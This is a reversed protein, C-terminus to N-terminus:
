NRLGPKPDLNTVPASETKWTASGASEGGRLVARIKLDGASRVEVIGSTVLVKSQATTLNHSVNFVTGRVGAVLTKTGVSFEDGNEGSYKQKIVSDISGSDLFLKTGRKMRLDFPARQIVLTTNPGLQVENKGEAFQLKVKGDAGTVITEGEYFPVNKKIARAASPLTSAVVEGSSNKIEASGEAEVIIGSPTAANAQTALGFVTAFAFLLNLMGVLKM